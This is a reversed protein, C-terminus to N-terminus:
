GERKDNEAAYFALSEEWHIARYIVMIVGFVSGIIVPVYAIWMKLWKVSSFVMNASNKACEFAGYALAGLFVV